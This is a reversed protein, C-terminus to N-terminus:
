FRFAVGVAPGSFDLGSIASESEFDYDLYRYTGFVEGWPTSYGIGTAAQSTRDADGAGIDVYYPVFWHNHEGFSVKGKVGLVADTSHDKQDGAIGAVPGLPSMLKADLTVEATLLRAGAFVDLMSRETDVLRRNAALTFVSAQVDLSADATIGPPLPIAGKALTTSGTIENGVDMYIADAFLGWKGKQAEVSGMAAVDTHDILDHAAIDIDGGGPVAFRTTGGINPVYGYVAARVDWNRQQDAPQQAFAVSPLLISVGLQKLKKSYM